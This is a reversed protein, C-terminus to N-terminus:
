MENGVVKRASIKVEHVAVLSCLPGVPVVVRYFAAHTEGVRSAQTRFQERGRFRCGPSTKDLARLRCTLSGADRRCSAACASRKLCAPWMLLFVVSLLDHVLCFYSTQM